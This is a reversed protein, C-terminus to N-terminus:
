STMFVRPRDLIAAFCIHPRKARGSAPDFRIAIRSSKVSGISPPALGNARLASPALVFLRDIRGALGFSTQHLWVPDFRRGGAQL